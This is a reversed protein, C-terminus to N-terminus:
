YSLVNAILIHPGLNLDGADKYFGSKPSCTDTAGANPISVFMDPIQQGTLM